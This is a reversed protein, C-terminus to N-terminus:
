FSGTCSLSMSGVYRSLTPTPNPLL